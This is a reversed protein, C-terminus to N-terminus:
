KVMIMKRSQEFNATKLKYIYVGSSLSSADWVAVHSGANLDRDLLRAVQQGMTNYITLEVRANEPLNFRIQTIPNFPNPYNQELSYEKPIVPSPVSPEVGVSFGPHADWYNIVDEIFMEREATPMQYLEFGLTVMNHQDLDDRIGAPALPDDAEFLTVTSDRPELLDAMSGFPFEALDLLFYAPLGTTMEDTQVLISDYGVDNTTSALRMYDYAFDGPAFDTNTWNTWVGMQEESSFLLSRGMGLFQSFPNDASAYPFTLDWDLAGIWFARNYNSLVTWYDMTGYQDVDWIAYPISLADLEDTITNDYNPSGLYGENPQDSCYLFDDGSNYTLGTYWYSYSPGITVNGLNDKALIRYNVLSWVAPPNHTLRYTDGGMNTMIYNTWNGGDVQVKLYVWEIGDPDTVDAFTPHPIDGYIGYRSGRVATIEPGAGVGFYDLVSLLIGEAIAPDSAELVWPLFVMKFSGDYRIGAPEADIETFFCDVAGSRAYVFDNYNPSPHNEFPTVFAGSIPDGDLGYYVTDRSEGTGTDIHADSWGFDVKLYDYMFSGVPATFETWVGQGGFAGGLYDSSSLFFNGGHDMFNAVPDASLDADNLPLSGSHGTGNFWLISNYNYRNIVDTGPYGMDASSGADILWFDYSFGNNDLASRYIDAAADVGSDNVLLIKAGSWQWRSFNYGALSPSISTHAANDDAEVRFNITSGPNLNPLNGTYEDGSTNTMITTDPDGGNISYILRAETVQGSGPVGSEDYDYITATVAYPGNAYTDPLDTLGEVFPPPDGYMNVKCRLLWDIGYAFWGSDAAYLGGPNNLWCLSRYPRDDAADGNISPDYTNTGGGQLVYGLFFDNTGVDLDGPPYGYDDFVIEEFPDAGGPAQFTIPIPSTLAAGLPSPAPGGGSEDNDYYLDPNFDGALDWIYLLADGPTYFQFLGSLIQCETPPEFWVGCTDNQIPRGSYYISNGDDYQIIYEVGQSYALSYTLLLATLLLVLAYIRRM